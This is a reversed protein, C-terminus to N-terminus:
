NCVVGGQACPLPWPAACNGLSYAACVARTIQQGNPCGTCLKLDWLMSGYQASGSSNRAYNARETVEALTLTHDM